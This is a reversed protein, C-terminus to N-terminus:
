PNGRARSKFEIKAVDGLLEKLKNKVEEEEKQGRKQWVEFKFANGQATVLVGNIEVPTPSIEGGICGLLLNYWLDNVQQADSRPIRWRYIGAERNQEDEWAPKVGQRFFGMSLQKQGSYKIESVLPLAQYYKYFNEVTNVSFIPQIQYDVSKDNTVVIMWFKWEKALQHQQGSM